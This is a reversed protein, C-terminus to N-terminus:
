SSKISEKQAMDDRLKLLKLYQKLETISQPSLNCIDEMMKDNEKQERIDILRKRVNTIGLLYDISVRYYDAILILTDYDPERSGQEYNSLLGRSLNLHEALKYQSIGPEERLMKLRDSLKNKRNRM